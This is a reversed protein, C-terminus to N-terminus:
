KFSNYWDLKAAEIMGLKYTCDLSPSANFIVKDDKIGIVLVTDFREAIADELVAIAAAILGDKKTVLVTPTGSM